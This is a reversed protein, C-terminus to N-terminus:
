HIRGNPDKETKPIRTKFGLWTFLKDRFTMMGRLTKGPDLPKRKENRIELHLHTPANTKEYGTRGMEGVKQGEGIEAGIKISKEIKSLHAYMVTSGDKLKVTVRLGSRSEPGVRIVIGREVNSIDDGVNGAIDVGGHQYTPRQENFYGKNSTTISTSETPWTVHGSPDTYNIPNNRCYAYRNLKQPDYIDDIM